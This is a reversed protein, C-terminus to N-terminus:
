SIYGRALSRGQLGGPPGPHPSRVFLPTKIYSRIIACTIEACIICALLASSLRQPYLDRMLKGLSIYLGNGGLQYLHHWVCCNTHTMRPPLRKRLQKPGFIIAEGVCWNKCYMPLCYIRQHQLHAFNCFLRSKARMLYLKLICDSKMNLGAFFAVHGEQRQFYMALTTSSGSQSLGKWLLDRM